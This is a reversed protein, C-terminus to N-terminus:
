PGREVEAARQLFYDHMISSRPLSRAYGRLYEAVTERAARRIGERTHGNLDLLSELKREARELPAAATM